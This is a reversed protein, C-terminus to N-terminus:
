AKSSEEEKLAEQKIRQINSSSYGSAEKEEEDEEKLKNFLTEELSDALKRNRVEDLIFELYELMPAIHSTVEATDKLNIIYAVKTLLAEKISTVNRRKLFNRLLKPNKM